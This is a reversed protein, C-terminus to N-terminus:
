DARCASCLPSGHPGYRRHEAGCSACPGVGTVAWDFRPLRRADDADLVVPVGPLLEVLRVLASM